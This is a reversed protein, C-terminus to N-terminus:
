DARVIQDARRSTATHEPTDIPAELGFLDAPPICEALRDLAVREEYGAKWERRGTGLGCGDVVEAVARALVRARGHGLAARGDDLAIVPVPAFYLDAAGVFAAGPERLCRRDRLTDRPTTSVAVRSVANGCL